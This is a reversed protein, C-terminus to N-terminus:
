EPVPDGSQGPPNMDGTSASGGVTHPFDDKKEDKEPSFDASFTAEKDNISINVNVNYINAKKSHTPEPPCHLHIHIPRDGIKIKEVKPKGPTRLQASRQNDQDSVM